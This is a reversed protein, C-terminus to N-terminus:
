IYIYNNNKAFIVPPVPSCRLVSYNNLIDSSWWPQWIWSRLEKNSHVGLFDALLGVMNFFRAVQATQRLLSLLKLLRSVKQKTSRLFGRGKQVRFWGPSRWSRLTFKGSNRQMGALIHSVAHFMTRLRPTSATVLEADAVPRFYASSVLAKLVCWTQLAPWSRRRRERDLHWTCSFNRLWSNRHATSTMPAKKGMKCRFFRLWTSWTSWTLVLVWFFGSLTEFLSVM